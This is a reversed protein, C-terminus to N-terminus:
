LIVNYWFYNYKDSVKYLIGRFYEGGKERGLDGREEERFYELGEEFFSYRFFIIM